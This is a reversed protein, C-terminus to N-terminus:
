YVENRENSLMSRNEAGVQILGNNLIELMLNRVLKLILVENMYYTVVCLEDDEALGLQEIESLNENMLIILCDEIGQFSGM